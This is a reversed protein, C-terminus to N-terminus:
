RKARAPGSPTYSRSCDKPRSRPRSSSDITVFAPDRVSRGVRYRQVGSGKRDVPDDDFLKKWADYDSVSHEVRLVPM